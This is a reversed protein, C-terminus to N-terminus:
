RVAPDGDSITTNRDPFLSRLERTLQHSGLADELVQLRAPQGQDAAFKDLSRDDGLSKEREWRTRWEDLWNRHLSSYEDEIEARLASHRDLAVRLRLVSHDYEAWEKGVLRAAEEARALADRGSQEVSSLEVAAPTTLVIDTLGLVSVFAAAEDLTVRRRPTGAAPNVVKQINSADIPCGAGTMLEAFRRYSLGRAKMESGIKSALHEELGVSRAQKPRPM